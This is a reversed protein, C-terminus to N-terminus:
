PLAPLATIRWPTAPGRFEAAEPANARQLVFRVSQGGHAVRVIQQAGRDTDTYTLMRLRRGSNLQLHGLTLHASAFYTTCSPGSLHHEFSERARATLYDCAAGGDNDVVAAGLFDRVTVQPSAEPESRAIGAVLASGIAAVCLAAAVPWILRRSV